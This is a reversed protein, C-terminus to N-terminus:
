YLISKLFRNKHAKGGIGNPSYFWQVFKCSKLWLCVRKTNFRKQCIVLRRCNSDYRSNYNIWGCYGVSVYKFKSLHSIDTVFTNHCNLGKLKTLQPIVTVNTDSIYLYTLTLIHPIQIMKTNCCNLEMLIPFNPLSIVNTYSCDLNILRPLLPIHTVNTYQCFLYCLDPLYPIIRIVECRACNILTIDQLEELTSTCIICM